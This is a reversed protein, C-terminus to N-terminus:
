QAASRLYRAATLAAQAGAGAAIIMQKDPADTVDGAAFFGPVATSQDRGVPIEGGENLTLLSEVAASNPELGIELFVGEVKLDFYAKGGGSHVRLGTLAQDGLFEKVETSLHLVVNPAAKVEDVLVSDAQFEALAHVLHIRSAFPLLDRVATFASNGGGVVAVAKDRYLPADCTACFAVGHGLFRSEGPVGLTRYKKGACYIVAKARYRHEGANLLFDRGQKEIRRVKVGLREAIPYRESHDRFLGALDQGSIQPIGLWNEVSATDTIQGGMHDGLLAVDFRKRMAYIGAALAAPGAGVIAVDYTHEDKVPVAHREGRAERLSGEVQEYEGPMVAKLIELVADPGPLAGEFGHVENIVTRPVGNVRYRQVLQPFEASEVMDSRIHENALALQHALHVMRPCYPCTLTVMVELHVPVDIRTALKEVEASLGSVGASVMAIAELLSSYEYGATVGYFRIGYDREGIVATAPVKSVGYRAALEADDVLDHVELAIKDSLAALEDLLERQQHCSGCAHRQSFYVLTVPDKLSQLRASVEARTTDDLMAAM